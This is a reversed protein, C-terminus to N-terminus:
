AEVKPSYVEALYDQLYKPRYVVEAAFGKRTSYMVLDKLWERTVKVSKTFDMEWWDGKDIYAYPLEKNSKLFNLITLSDGDVDLVYIYPLFREHWYDRARPNAVAEYNKVERDTLVEKCPNNLTENSM